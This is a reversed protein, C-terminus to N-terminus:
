VMLLLSSFTTNYAGRTRLGHGCTVGEALECHSWAGFVLNFKPCIKNPIQCSEEEFIPGCSEGGLIVRNRQRKFKTLDTQEIFYKFINYKIHLKVNGVQMNVCLNIIINIIGVHKM